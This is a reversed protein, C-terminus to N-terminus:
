VSEKQPDVFVLGGGASQVSPRRPYLTEVRVWRKRKAWNEAGACFVVVLRTVEVPALSHMTGSEQPVKTQGVYQMGNERQYLALTGRPVDGTKTNSAVLELATSSYKFEDPVINAAGRSLNGRHGGVVM